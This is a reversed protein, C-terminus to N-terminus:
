GLFGDPALSTALMVNNINLHDLWRSTSRHAPAKWFDNIIKVIPRYQSLESLRSNLTEVHIFQEPHQHIMQQMKDLAQIGIALGLERFALRHEAPLHLANHQVFAQLSIEIDALLSELRTNEDVQYNAILKVLRYADSLLGGIGLSDQTDWSRGACMATMDEIEKKLSNEDTVVKFKRSTAQLQLYTILGDLPDHHGMSNVQPRTLDISMKWVMRKSGDSTTNTFAAHTTKALEIAWQNYIGKGTVESVRNLAHMWKTLYHFYQGDREWELQEDFPENAQREDLIKGIRLGGQTPHIHSQQDDLGSIWGKRKSEKHYKGLIQHVQDILDLARQLQKSEGTQHYLQLYNCVAFADTWLYRTPEKILQAEEQSLGEDKSNIIDIYLGTSVAYGEMISAENITKPMVSIM